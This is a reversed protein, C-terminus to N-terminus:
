FMGHYSIVKLPRLYGLYMLGDIIPHSIVLNFFYFIVYIYDITIWVGNFYGQKGYAGLAIM